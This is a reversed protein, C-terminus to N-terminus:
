KNLNNIKYKNLFDYLLIPKYNEIEISLRLNRETYFPYQKIFEASSIDLSHLHGHINYLESRGTMDIPKHSFVIDHAIYEKCVHYFGRKEFWAMTGTRNDHNGMTLIKIGPLSNLIEKLRYAQRFIVDGLHIVIDDPGVMAKWNALILENYDDPRGEYKKINEHYWHMVYGTDGM